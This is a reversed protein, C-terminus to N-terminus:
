ICFLHVADCKEGVPCNSERTCSQADHPDASRCVGLACFSGPACPADPEHCEQGFGERLACVQAPRTCTFEPGACDADTDCKPRPQCQHEVCVEDSLCGFGADDCQEIPAPLRPACSSLATVAPLSVPVLLLVARIM